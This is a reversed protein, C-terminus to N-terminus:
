EPPSNGGKLSTSAYIERGIEEADRKDNGIGDSSSEGRFVLAALTSAVRGQVVISLSAPGVGNSGRLVGYNWCTCSVYSWRRVLAQAPHRHICAARWNHPGLQRVLSASFDPSGTKSHPRYPGLHPSTEHRCPPLDHRLRKRLELLARCCRRYLLGM